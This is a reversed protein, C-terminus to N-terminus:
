DREINRVLLYRLINGELNLKNTVKNSVETEERQLLDYFVFNGSEHTKGSKDTINYALRKWGDLEKREIIYYTRLYDDIEDINEDSFIITLEFRKLDKVSM